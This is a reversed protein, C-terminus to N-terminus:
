MINTYVVDSYYINNNNNNNNNNSISRSSIFIGFYELHSKVRTAFSRIRFAYIIACLFM